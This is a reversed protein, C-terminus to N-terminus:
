CILHELNLATGQKRWVHARGDSGFISFKSQDTFLVSNWFAKPQNLHQKAFNLRKTKNAASILPKRRPTRGHYTIKHLVRRITQPHVDVEDIEQVIKFLQSANIKPTKKVESWLHDATGM